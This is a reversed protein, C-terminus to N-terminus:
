GFLIVEYSGPTIGDFAIGGGTSTLLVKHTVSGFVPDMGVVDGFEFQDNEFM